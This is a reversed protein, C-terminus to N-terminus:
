LKTKEVSKQKLLMDDVLDMPLVCPMGNGKDMEKESDAVLVVIGVNCSTIDKDCVIMLSPDKPVLIM